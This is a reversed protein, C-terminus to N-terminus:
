DKQRLWERFNRAKTDVSFHEVALEHMETAALTLEGAQHKKRAELLQDQADKPLRSFWSVRHRGVRSQCAELFTPKSSKAM